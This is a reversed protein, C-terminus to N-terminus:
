LLFVGLVFGFLVGYVIFYFFAVDVEFFYIFLYLYCIVQLFANDLGCRSFRSPGLAPGLPVGGAADGGSITATTM